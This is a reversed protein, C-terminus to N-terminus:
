LPNGEADSVYAKILYVPEVPESVEGGMPKSARVEVKGIRSLVDYGKLLQGFVTYKGDLWAVSPNRGLCIFFQTQASNEAYGRAMSLTGFKHPVQSFEADLNYSVPEKGVPTPNGGQIMFNEVVRHFITSDYFGDEVRALFSDAHAPAVDHYLELTMKGFNTRLTVIKNDDNRIAHRMAALSDLTRDGYVTDQKVASEDNGGSCAAQSFVVASAVLILFVIKRM